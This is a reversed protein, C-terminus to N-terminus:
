TRVHLLTAGTTQRAELDRHAAAADRLPYQQGIQVEVAGSRLVDFLADASATLKERTGTYTGLSPNMIALSRRNLDHLDLPDPRGSAWGFVIVRGEKQVAELSGRFTAKGVGDYVVSAGQGNTLDRVREVFDEERYLIPHDVGNHRAREAKAESGVTGIVTAGRHRAWQTLLSGVGGSAAHVLLTDDPGVDYARRVLYEATMGKLFSAAAVEDTVDDPLKVLREASMTRHTAYSGLVLHYAVRDGPLLGYRDPVERGVEVITGAGETGMVLPFADPGVDGRRFYVDLYNLGSVTQRLRVERPGPPDVDVPEYQLADPGGHRHIRVAYM